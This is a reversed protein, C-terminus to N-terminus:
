PRIRVPLNILDDRGKPVFYPFITRQLKSQLANYLAARPSVADNGRAVIVFQTRWFPWDDTGLLLTITVHAVIPAAPEDAIAIEQGFDPSRAPRSSRSSESYEIAITAPQGESVTISDSALRAVLLRKLAQEITEPTGDSATTRLDFKLNVPQKPGLWAPTDADDRAAVSAVIKAWPIKVAILENGRNSSVALRKDDIFHRRPYLSRTTDGAIMWTVRRLGRDLFLRGGLLWGRGAPDWDVASETANFSWIGDSDFGTREEFVVEGSQNWALVREGRDLSAILESGDPSFRLGDLSTFGSSAPPPVAIRVLVKAKGKSPSRRIDYILVGDNRFPVALLKGNDSLTAQRDFSELMVDKSLKGTTLNWSQVYHEGKNTTVAILRDDAGFALFELRVGFNKGRIQHLTKGDETRHVDIGSTDGVAYYEGNASLARLPRVGYAIGTKGIIEGTTLHRVQNGIAVFPGGANAFLPGDRGPDLAIRLWTSDALSAASVESLPANFQGRGATQANTSSNM